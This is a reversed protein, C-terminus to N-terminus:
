RCGARSVLEVAAKWSQRDVVARDRDRSLTHEPSLAFQNSERPRRRHREFERRTLQDPREVHVFTQDSVHAIVEVVSADYQQM